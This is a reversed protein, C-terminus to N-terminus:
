ARGGLQRAAEALPLFLTTPRSLFPRFGHHIYFRRALDDKADVVLAYIASDARMARAVADVILVSGVGRGHFRQDVALRGILGAPVSPYRPLRRM